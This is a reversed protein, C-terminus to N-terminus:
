TRVWALVPISMKNHKTSIVNTVCQLNTNAKHPVRGSTGKEWCCQAM